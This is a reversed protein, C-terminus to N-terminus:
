GGACQSSLLTPGIANLQTRRQANATDRGTDTYDLRRASGDVDRNMHQDTWPSAVEYEVGGLHPRHKTIDLVTGLNAGGTDHDAHQVLLPVDIDIGARPQNVCGTRHADRKMPSEIHCGVRGGGQSSDTVQADIAQQGGPLRGVGPVPAIQQPGEDLIGTFPQADHQTGADGGVVRGVQHSVRAGRFQM